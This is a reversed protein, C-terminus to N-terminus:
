YICDMSHDPDPCYYYLMDYIYLILVYISFLFVIFTMKNFFKEYKGFFLTFISVGFKIESMVHRGLGGMSWMWAFWCEVEYERRGCHEGTARADSIIKQLQLGMLSLVRNTLGIWRTVTMNAANPVIDPISQEVFLTRLVQVLRGCVSENAVNQRIVINNQRLQARSLGADRDQAREELKSAEQNTLRRANMIFEARRQRSAEEQM